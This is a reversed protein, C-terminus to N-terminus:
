PNVDQKPVKIIQGEYITSSEIGNVKKIEYIASRVEKDPYYERAIDWLTDGQEIVITEYEVPQKEQINKACVTIILLVTSLFCLFVLARFSRKRKAKKLRRARLIQIMEEANNCNKLKDM